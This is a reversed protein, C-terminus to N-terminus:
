SDLLPIFHLEKHNTKYNPIFVPKIVLENIWAIYEDVIYNHLKDHYDPFYITYDSNTIKINGQEYIRLYLNFVFFGNMQNIELCKHKNYMKAIDKVVDRIKDQIKNTNIFESSYTNFDEPFFLTAEYDKKNDLPKKYFPSKHFVYANFKNNIYSFLVYPAILYSTNDKMTVIKRKIDYCKLWYFMNSNNIYNITKKLENINKPDYSKPIFNNINKYIYYQEIVYKYKNTDFQDIADKTSFIIKTFNNIEKSNEGYFELMFKYLNYYNQIIYTNGLTNSLYNMIFKNEYPISNYLSISPSYYIFSNDIFYKYVSNMSKLNLEQLYEELKLLNVASNNEIQRTISYTPYFDEPYINRHFLRMSYTNLIEDNSTIHYGNYNFNIFKYKNEYLGNQLFLNSKSLPDINNKHISLYEYITLIINKKNTNEDNIFKELLNKFIQNTIISNKDIFCYYFQYIQIDSKSKMKNLYNDLIKKKISSTLNNFFAIGSIKNNQELIYIHSHRKIKNLNYNSLYGFLPIKVYKKNNLFFQLDNQNYNKINIIKINQLNKSTFKLLKSTNKKIKKITKDKNIKGKM